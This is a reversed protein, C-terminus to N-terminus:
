RRSSSPALSSTLRPQSGGPRTCGSGTTASETSCTRPAAASGPRRTNAGSAAMHIELVPGEATDLDDPPSIGLSDPSVGYLDAFAAVAASFATRRSAADDTLPSLPLGSVSVGASELEAALTQWWLGASRALLLMRGQQLAPDSFLERLARVPWREAYDVVVLTREGPSAAAHGPEDHEGALRAYMVTWGQAACRSAFEDSLRSKGQGLPGFVLKALLTERPDDAWAELTSLEDARSTFQVVRNAAALLRSPQLHGDEIRSPTGTPEFAEFRYPVTRVDAPGVSVVSDIFDESVTLPQRSEGPVVRVALPVQRFPIGGATLLTLRLGTGSGVATEAVSLVFKAPGYTGGFRHVVLTSDGVSRVTFGPDASIVCGIEYEERDYPWDAPSGDLNFDVTILYNSGPAITQPWSIVPRLSVLPTTV